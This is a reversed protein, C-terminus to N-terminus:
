PHRTLTVMTIEGRTNFRVPQGSVGAGMSTFGQMGGIRWRGAYLHRNKHLRTIVPKGGPLCVQGGHCHGCIYLNYQDKAAEDAFEPSHVLAVSFGDRGATLAQTAAPSYFRHIDDVGTFTLRDGQREVQWSENILVTVGNSELVDAMWHGDHNGLIGLIGDTARVAGLVRKLADEMAGDPGAQWDWYDGTMVCLDAEIGALRSVIEDALVPLEDFHTDTIHLIRYGDFVEPLLDDTFPEQRLEIGRANRIGRNWLGSVKLSWKVFNMLFGDLLYPIEGTRGDPSQRGGKREQSQRKARWAARHKDPQKVSIDM